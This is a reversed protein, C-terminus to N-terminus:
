LFFSESLWKVVKTGSLPQKQPPFLPIGSLRFFNVCVFFHALGEFYSPKVCKEKAPSSPFVCVTEFRIQPPKGHTLFRTNLGNKGETVM